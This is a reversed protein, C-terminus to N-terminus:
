LFSILSYNFVEFSNWIRMQRYLSLAIILVWMMFVYKKNKCQTIYACILLPEVLTFYVSGRTALEPIFSFLKYIIISIFYFNLAYSFYAWKFVKRQYFFFFFFFIRIILATTIFGYEIDRNSAFDQYFEVRESVYKSAGFLGTLTSGIFYDFCFSLVLCSIYIKIDFLKNPTVCSLLAILSTPHFLSAIFILSIKKSCSDQLLAIAVIGLATFQRYQEIGYQFYFLSLILFLSLFPKESKDWCWKSLLFIAIITYFLILQWYSSLYHALVAFIFGTGTNALYLNWWASISNFDYFQFKYNIYDGGPSGNRFGLIVILLLTYIIYLFKSGKSKRYSCFFLPLLPLALVLNNM